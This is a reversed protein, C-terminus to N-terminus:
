ALLRRFKESEVKKPKSSSLRQLIRAYCPNRCWPEALDKRLLSNPLLSQFVTIEDSNIQSEAAYDVLLEPNKPIAHFEIPGPSWIRLDDIEYSVLKQSRCIVDNVLTGAFTLYCFGENGHMYPLEADTLMYSLEKWKRELFMEDATALESTEWSSELLIQRVANLITPDIGIGKGAYDIEIDHSFGRAPVVSIGSARINEITWVQGAFRVRLGQRLRTLNRASVAGIERGKEKLPVERSKLPFNGWLLRLAELRYLNSGAGIRNQFGHRVCSGGEVLTDAIADVSTRTLHSWPSILEAIDALRVYSGKKERLISLIQQVVSGHLAMPQAPEGGALRAFGLTTLFSLVTLWHCSKARPSICLVKGSKGRRNGRGVRQLFSEWGGRIGYLIILDVDGIDIGLELTSTATCIARTRTSFERETRERNDSSISSHHVFVTDKFSSSAQIEAALQEAVRRSDVFVLVKFHRSQDVYDLLASLDGESREIRVVAEIPRVESVTIIALSNEKVHPRFFKWLYTPYAITASLGVVQITSKNRRELRRILIGLQLGRQTNYLLHVEDVVVARLDKLFHPSGSVLVDLSEPTTVVVQSKDTHVRDKADGHRLILSIKLINLPPKLRRVVDNALAKTPVIYVITSQNDASRTLLYKNVLPAMVAATKGSGTGSLIVADFGELLPKEANLQVETLEGFSGYFAKGVRSDLGVMNETIKM